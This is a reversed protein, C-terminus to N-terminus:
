RGESQAAIEARIEEEEEPTFFPPESWLGENALQDLQRSDSQFADYEGNDEKLRELDDAAKKWFRAREYREVLETIIEGMPREEENSITQLTAHTAPNIKVVAPTERRNRVM